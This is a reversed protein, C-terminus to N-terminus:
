QLRVLKGLGGHHRSQARGDGDDGDDDGERGPQGQQAGHRHAQEGVPVPQADHQGGGDGGREDREEDAPEAAQHGDDVAGIDAPEGADDFAPAAAQRDDHQHRHNGTRHEADGRHQCQQDRGPQTLQHEGGHGGVDVARDRDPAIDGLQAGGGLLEAFQEAHGQVV